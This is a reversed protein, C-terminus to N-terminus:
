SSTYAVLESICNIGVNKGTVESPNNMVDHRLQKISNLNFLGQSQIIEEGLLFDIKGRLETQFWKILPVEFGRKGRHYIEEPLLM